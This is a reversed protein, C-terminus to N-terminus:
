SYDLVKSDTKNEDKNEVRGLNNTDSDQDAIEAAFKLAIPDEKLAEIGANVEKGTKDKLSNEAYQRLLNPKETTHPAGYTETMLANVTAKENEAIQNKLDQIEKVPDIIGAEKMVNMVALAASHEETIIRDKIGMADVIETLTIEGTSKMANLRKLIENKDMTQEEEEELNNTVQKMAGTGYEVADNREGKVSEIVRVVTEGSENVEIIEKPITVLSYHIMDSKNELIFRENSGGEGEKPIYNKFYVIGTGDGNSELKAGVMVFDTNSRAGWFISHGAKSGPIPREKLKSIFSEFFSEEYILRNAVIPYEIKQLKYFPDTDGEIWKNLIEEPIMNPISEPTISIKEASESEQLNLLRCNDKNKRKGM